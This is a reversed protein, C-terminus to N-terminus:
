RWRTAYSTKLIHMRGEGLAEKFFLTKVKSWSFFNPHVIQNSDGSIMFHMPNHLSKLLLLLQVNTIDQVEDIVMFDYQPKVRELYSHAVMNPDYLRAEQLFALYKEFLEYVKERERGPFISQKVGLKLYEERSM